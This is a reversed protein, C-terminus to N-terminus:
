GFCRNKTEPSQVIIFVYENISYEVEARLDWLSSKWYSAENCSSLVLIAYTKMWIFVLANFNIILIKIFNFYM